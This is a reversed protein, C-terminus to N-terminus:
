LGLLQKKKADFEEQTIAGLDLLEKYERIEKAVSVGDKNNSKESDQELHSKQAENKSIEQLDRSGCNPCRDYDVIQSLARDANGQSTASAAYQGGIATFLGATSSLLASTRQQQNKKLDAQTYCFVHGCVSCKKFLEENEKARREADQEAKIAQAAQKATTNEMILKGTLRNYICTIETTENGSIELSPIKRPYGGCTAELVGGEAISFEVTENKKVKGINVGNLRLEMAGIALLHANVGHVILKGM